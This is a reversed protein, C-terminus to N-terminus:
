DERAAARVLVLQAEVLASAVDLKQADDDLPLSAVSVYRRPAGPCVRGELWGSDGGM